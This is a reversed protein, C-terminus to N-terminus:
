SLATRWELEFGSKRSTAINCSPKSCTDFETSLRDFVGEIFGLSEVLSQAVYVLAKVIYFHPIPTEAPRYTIAPMRKYASIRVRLSDNQMCSVTCRIDGYVSPNDAPRNLVDLTHLGITITIPEEYVADSGNNRM